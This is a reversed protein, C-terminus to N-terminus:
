PAGQLKPLNGQSAGGLELDRSALNIIALFTFLIFLALIGWLMFNKGKTNEAENGSNLIFKSLGWFFVLFAAAFLIPNLLSIISLIEDIIGKFTSGALSFSQALVFVPFFAAVAIFRATWSHKLQNIINTM